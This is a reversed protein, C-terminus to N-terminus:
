KNAKRIKRKSKKVKFVYVGAVLIVLVVLAIPFVHPNNLKLGALQSNAPESFGKKRSDEIGQNRVLTNLSGEEYLTNDMGNNLFNGESSNQTIKDDSFKSYNVKEINNLSNEFPEGSFKASKAFNEDVVQVSVDLEASKSCVMDMSVFYVFLVAIIFISYFETKM